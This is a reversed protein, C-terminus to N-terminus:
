CTLHLAAAIRASTRMLRNLEEVAQTTRAVRPEVGKDRLAKLTKEPVDMNGYFGTGIVLTEPPDELLAELDAPDLSHGERRWWPSHVEEGPLLLVDKTYVRGEITIRGFAYDDIM